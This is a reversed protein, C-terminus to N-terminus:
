PVVQKVDAPRESRGPICQPPHHDVADLQVAVAAEPIAQRPFRAKRILPGQDILSDAASLLSQSFFTWVMLGIGPTILFSGSSSSSSAALPLALGPM